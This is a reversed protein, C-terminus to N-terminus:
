EDQKQEADLFKQELEVVEKVEKMLRHIDYTFNTYVIMQEPKINDPCLHRWREIM